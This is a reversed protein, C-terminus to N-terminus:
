PKQLVDGHLKGIRGHPGVAFPLWIANWQKDAQPTEQQGPTLARWNQGDDTSIDTGSPGVAIWAKMRPDYAVASRYGAPRTKAPSFHFLPHEKNEADDAGATTWATDDGQEPHSFDGGVAVTTGRGDRSEALSFCGSSASKNFSVLQESSATTGFHVEGPKAPGPQPGLNQRIISPGSPGGTCFARSSPSTVVLSSNSAAFISQGSVSEAPGIQGTTWTKGGDSTTLLVFHGGVPDGLLTGHLRDTFQLADWFGDKDKNTLLLTWTRCGDTTKYLRSLDGTGSSMVVATNEDWAQIGRFDLKAAGPPQVCGQWVYGGDETRLVTGDSGSAGAVGGGVSIIGRLSASSNSEEIEWQALLSPAFALLVGLLFLQRMCRTYLVSESEIWTGSRTM